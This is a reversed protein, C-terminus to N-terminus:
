VGITQPEYDISLLLNASFQVFQFYEALASLVIMTRNSPHEVQTEVESYGIWGLM